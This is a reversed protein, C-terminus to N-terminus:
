APQDPTGLMTTIGGDVYIVQGVIYAADDSCLFAVAAGIEIPTARRKLPVFGPPRTARADEPDLSKNYTAGPAVSNVRIGYDCLDISMSRTMSDMAGKSMDYPLGRFHARLGGVSSINVICGAANNERMIDSARVACEYPARINAMLQYDALGEPMDALRYRRLDAANNVLVDVGGFATLTTEFVADIGEDTSLDAAVSAVPVSLSRLEAATQEVADESRSTIVVNMGERALRLAIGKGIGRSSGTVLATKGALEPYRIPISDYISKLDAM